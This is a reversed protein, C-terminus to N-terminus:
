SDAKILSNKLTDISDNLRENTQEDFYRQFSKQIYEADNIAQLTSSENFVKRGGSLTLEEDTKAQQDDATEEKNDTPQTPKKAVSQSQQTPEAEQETQQDTNPKADKTQTQDAPEVKSNHPTTPPEKNDVLLPVKSEESAVHPSKISEDGNPTTSKESLAQPPAIPEIQKSQQKTAPQPTISPIKSEQKPTP